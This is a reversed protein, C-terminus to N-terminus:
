EVFEDIDVKGAKGAKGARDASREAKDAADAAKNKAEAADNFAGVGSEAKMAGMRTEVLRQFNWAAWVIAIATILWWTVQAFFLIVNGYTQIWQVFPPLAEAATTAPM